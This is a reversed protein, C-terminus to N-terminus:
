FPHSFISCARLPPAGLKPAQTRPASRGEKRFAEVCVSNSHILCPACDRSQRAKPVLVFSCLAPPPSKPMDEGGPPAPSLPLKCPSGGVEEERGRGKRAAGKGTEECGSGPQGSGRKQILHIPQVYLNYKGKQTIQQKQTRSREPPPLPLCLGPMAKEHETDGM